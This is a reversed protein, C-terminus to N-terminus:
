DATAGNKTLSFVENLLDTACSLGNTTPVTQQFNRANDRYMSNNRVEDVLSPLHNSKRVFRGCRDLARSNKCGCRSITGNAPNFFM